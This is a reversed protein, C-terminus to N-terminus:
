RKRATSSKQKRKLGSMITFPWRKALHYKHLLNGSLYEDATEWGKYWCENWHLPNQYISGRLKEIVAKMEEGTISAIFEIDVMGLADISLLLADSVSDCHINARYDEKFSSEYDFPLDMATIRDVHKKHKAAAREAARKEAAIRRKEDEEMKKKLLEAEREQIRRRERQKIDLQALKMSEIAIDLDEASFVETGNKVNEYFDFLVKRKQKALEVPNLNNISTNNISAM